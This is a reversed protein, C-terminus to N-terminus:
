SWRTMHQFSVKTGVDPKIRYLDLNPLDTRLTIPTDHSGNCTMTILGASGVMINMSHTFVSHVVGVANPTVLQKAASGIRIARGAYM